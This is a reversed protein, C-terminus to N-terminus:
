SGKPVCDLGRKRELERGARNGPTIERGTASYFVDGHSAEFEYRAGKLPTVPMDFVNVSSSALSDKSFVFRLVLPTGLPLGFEATPKEDLYLTGLYDSQCGASLTFISLAAARSNILPIGTDIKTRVVANPAYTTPYPKVGSCATLGLSLVAFGCLRLWARPSSLTLPM